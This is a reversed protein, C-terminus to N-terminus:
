QTGSVYNLVTAAWGGNESLNSIAHFLTIPGKVKRVTQLVTQCPWISQGFVKALQWTNIALSKTPHFM